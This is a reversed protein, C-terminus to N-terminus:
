VSNNLIEKDPALPLLFNGLIFIGSLANKIQFLLVSKEPSIIKQNKM